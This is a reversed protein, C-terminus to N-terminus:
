SATALPPRLADNVWAHINRAKLHEFMAQMRQRREEVPMRLAEYLSDAIRELDHPNVLISQTLESAAGTFESLILVGPDGAKASVFEKAVLNMGDCLPTVLAVDAAKYLALLEPQELHRHIYRIPEWDPTSLRGNIHGVLEEITSRHRRYESVEGRSPVAVQIFVARTRMEPYRDFFNEIALLREPIGKTYDLRDVGLLLSVGPRRLERIRKHVADDRAKEALTATDVAIPLVRIRCRGSGDPRLVSTGKVYEAGLLRKVADLLQDRYLATHVGVEDAALLGKLLADRWPIHRFIEFAPFPIHLFFRIYREPRERRLLEPLLLFHYDHVWIDNPPNAEELAEAFLRNAEQYARWWSIDFRSRGLLDHFLPWLTANCFGAYFGDQVDEPLPVPLIDYGIEPRIADWAQSPQGNGVWLGGHELLLPSLASVLGGEGRELQWGSDAEVPRVPLKNAVICLEKMHTREREKCLIQNSPLGEM